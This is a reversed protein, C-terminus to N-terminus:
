TTVTIKECSRVISFLPSAVSVTLLMVELSPCNVTEGVFKLTFAPAVWFTVTVKVGVEPPVFYEVRVMVLLSAVEGVALSITFPAAM